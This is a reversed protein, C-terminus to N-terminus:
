SLVPDIVLPESPDYREVDFGVLGDERLRYTGAIEGAEQQYIFPKKLRLQGGDHNLLLDGGDDLEMGDVGEFALAIQDVRAGPAVVLDYELERQKGYYIIDVGPYIREYKVRGYHPVDRLWAKPDRGILYHSKGARPELGVAKAEPNAGALEMRVAAGGTALVAERPGLSLRYGPGQAVYQSNGAQGQHPEFVLPLTSFNPQVAARPRADPQSRGRRLLGLM